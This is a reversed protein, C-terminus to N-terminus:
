KRCIYIDWIHINKEYIKEVFVNFFAAELCKHIANSTHSYRKIKFKDKWNWFVFSRHQIYNWILFIWDDQLIRYIEIFLDGLNKIHEIVFFTTIIDAIKDDFPLAEELDVIKKEVIQWEPHLELLKESSDCAIFKTMWTQSDNQWNNNAFWHLKAFINKFYWFIRGDGAWLDVITKWELDRPLFKQWLGHDFSNLHRHYKKYQKSINNYWETPDLVKVLNRKSMSYFFRLM